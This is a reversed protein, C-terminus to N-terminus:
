HKLMCSRMQNRPLPNNMCTDFGMRADKCFKAIEATCPLKQFYTLCRQSLKTWNNMLCDATDSRTKKKGGCLRTVDGNCVAKPPLWSKCVPDLKEYNDGLCTSLKEDPLDKCFKKVSRSCFDIGQIHKKGEAICEPSLKAKQKKLCSFIDLPHVGPCLQAAEKKCPIQARFEALCAESLKDRNQYVCDSFRMGPGCLKATEKHCTPYSKGPSALIADAQFLILFFPLWRM